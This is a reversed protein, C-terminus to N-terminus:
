QEKIQNMVEDAFNEERKEKGEGVEYRIFTNVTAGANDIYKKVKMDPDKVFDQELLCIQEFFKGLSVEVMNHVIKETNGENFVQSKLVAKDHNVENEDVHEKSVYTPNVAAIHMAMDKAVAEDQSGELVTLAGILGGQHTYTGFVDND